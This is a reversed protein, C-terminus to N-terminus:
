VGHGIKRSNQTSIAPLVRYSGVDIALPTPRTLTGGSYISLSTNGITGTVNFGNILNNALTNLLTVTTGVILGASNDLETVGAIRKSGPRVLRLVPNFTISYANFSPLYSNGTPSRTGAQEGAPISYSGYQGGGDVVDMNVSTYTLDLTTMYLARWNVKISDWFSQCIVNGLGDAYAAPTRYHFVNHVEQGYMSGNLYLRIISGAPITM